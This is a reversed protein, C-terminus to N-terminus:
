WIFARAGGGPYRVRGAQVDSDHFTPGSADRGAHSALARGTRRRILEEVHVAGGRNMIEVAADVKEDAGRAMVLVGGHRLGERYLQAENQSVGIRMLERVFDLEFETHELSVGSDSDDRSLAIPESIIHIESRALGDDELSRVIGKAMAPNEFLGIAVKPM